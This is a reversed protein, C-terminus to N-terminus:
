GAAHKITKFLPTGYLGTEKLRVRQTRVVHLGFTKPTKPQLHDRKLKRKSAGLTALKEFRSGWPTDKAGMSRFASARRAKKAQTHKLKMGHYNKTM